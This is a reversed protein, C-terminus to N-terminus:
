NTTVKRIRKGREGVYLNNNLDIGTTTNEYADGGPISIGLGTDLSFGQSNGLTVVMLAFLTFIKKM